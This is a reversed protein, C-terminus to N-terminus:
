PTGFYAKQNAEITQRDSTSLASPWLIGEQFETNAYSSNNSVLRGISFTAGTMAVLTGSATGSSTTGDKTMLVSNGTTAFGYVHTNASVDWSLSSTFDFNFGGFYVSGSVDYLARASGNVASLGWSAVCVTGATRLNCVSLYTTDTATSLLSGSTVTSTSGNFTGCPLTRAVNVVGATVIQPQNAQTGQSADKANTSQDYWVTVFGNGAGVFALMSATDLAGSSFGIDQETNDSSRRVRLCAGAYASRIKRVSYAAISGPVADLPLAATIVYAASGIASDTYGAKTALVKITLSSAVSIAGSVPTSANTPTSGDTTYFMSASATACSVTVSQTSGYTGAVPSFTPTAVQGNITYAASGIASNTYGAKVALAKLTLSSAVAVPGTYLTSGTTPTSGDTTYYIADPTSTSSITVNQTPGYSGAVPSFTPTAVQPTGGGGANGPTNGLGVGIGVTLM